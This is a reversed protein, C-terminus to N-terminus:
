VGIKEGALVVRDGGAKKAEYMSLDARMQFKDAKEGATLQAVGISMTVPKLKQGMYAMKLPWREAFAKRFRDMVLGAKELDTEVLLVAFEDGGIRFANDTSRFVSAMCDAVFCLINDGEQHGYTDNFPKFNDLDFTALSLPREYRVSREMEEMLSSHFHRRNFLNTLSDTISRKRLEVEMEKRLTLDHFFGVSGIEEQGGKSGAELILAASLRIPIITGGEGNVSVELGDVRGPGGYEDSYIKKKVDRALEPVGYVDQITMKGIVKEADLGTLKESAENFIIVVGERNVAMIGDPCMMVLKDLFDKSAMMDMGQQELAM